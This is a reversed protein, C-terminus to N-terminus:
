DANEFGISKAISVVDGTPERRATVGRHRKRLKYNRWTLWLDTTRVTCILNHVPLIRRWKARMYRYAQQYGGSLSVVPRSHHVVPTDIIYGRLGMANAIQIIDTGFMHFGPLDEDFRVGSSRRVVLLLEDLCISQVPEAVREGITRQLSSAWVMGRLGNQRDLGIPGAVVWNPDIAELKEIEIGLQQAYGAPLYVDQHVLVLYDKDSEALAKNYALGASKFGVYTRLTVGGKAIDPSRLLCSELTNQDNVAAAIDIQHASSMANTNDM